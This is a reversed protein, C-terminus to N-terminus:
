AVTVVGQDWCNLWDETWRVTYKELRYKMLQDLLILVDEDSPVPGKCLTLLHGVAAGDGLEEEQREHVCPLLQLEQVEPEEQADVQSGEQAVAEDNSSYGAVVAEVCGHVEEEEAERNKVQAGDGGSNGFGHGIGQPVGPGDGVQPTSSLNKEKM